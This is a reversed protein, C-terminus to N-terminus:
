LSFDHLFVQKQEAASVSSGSNTVVVKHWLWAGVGLRPTGCRSLGTEASGLQRGPLVPGAEWASPREGPGEWASPLRVAAIHQHVRSRRSEREATVMVNQWIAAFISDWRM